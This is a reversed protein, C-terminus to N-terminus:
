VGDPRNTFCTLLHRLGVTSTVNNNAMGRNQGTLETQGVKLFNRRDHRAFLLACELSRRTGPERLASLM